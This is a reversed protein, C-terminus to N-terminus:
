TFIFYLSFHQVTTNFFYYYYYYFLLLLIIIVFFNLVLPVYEKCVKFCSMSIQQCLSSQFKLVSTNNAEALLLLVRVQVESIKYPKRWSKFVSSSFRGEDCKVLYLVGARSFFSPEHFSSAQFKYVTQCLTRSFVLCTFLLLQYYSKSM